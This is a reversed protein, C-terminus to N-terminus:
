TQEGKSINELALQVRARAAAGLPSDGGILKGDGYGDTTGEHILM